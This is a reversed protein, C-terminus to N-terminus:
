AQIPLDLREDIWDRLLASVSKNAALAEAQLIGKTVEDLHVTVQQNPLLDSEDIAIPEFYHTPYLYAEGSGDVVRVWGHEREQSSIPLQKYIQGVKLESFTEALDEKFYTANKLCRLYTNMTRVIAQGNSFCM